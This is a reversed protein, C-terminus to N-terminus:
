AGAGRVTVVDDQARGAYAESINAPTLAEELPGFAVQRGALLAVQDATEEALSVDHTSAVVAVGHAKMDQVLRVLAQRNPHDLGNFPEDLLVLRPRAVLARALLVRQRQGGSLRGFRVQARHALDVHALAEDIRANQEATLRRWPRREAVLGMAVVDRVTVPFGADVDALQPVYGIAGRPAHGPAAGLVRATGTIRCQGLIGRLLTTKGAGNPGILALGEGPRVSGTVGRLSPAAAGPYRFDAHVFELAAAEDPAAPPAPTRAAASAAAPPASTRPSSSM